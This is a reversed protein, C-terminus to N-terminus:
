LSLFDLHDTAALLSKEVLVVQPNNIKDLFACRVTIILPHFYYLRFKKYSIHWNLNLIFFQSTDTFVITGPRVPSSNKLGSWCLDSVSLISELIIFSDM